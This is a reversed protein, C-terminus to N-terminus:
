TDDLFIPTTQGSGPLQRERAEARGQITEAMQRRLEPHRGLV